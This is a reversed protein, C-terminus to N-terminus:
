EITKGIEGKVEKGFRLIKKITDWFDLGLKPLNEHVTSFGEMACFLLVVVTALEFEAESVSSFIFNKLHLKAQLKICLEPVSLYFFLKVALSKAKQSSFGEGKGFFWKDKHDTKRWEWWSALIGTVLDALIFCLFITWVDAYTIIKSLEVAAPITTLAVAPKKLYVVAFTFKPISLSVLEKM